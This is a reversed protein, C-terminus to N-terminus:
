MLVSKQFRKPHRNFVGLKLVSAFILILIIGIVVAIRLHYSYAKEPLVIPSTSLLLSSGEMQKDFERMPKIYPMYPPNVIKVGDGDYGTVLVFHGRKNNKGKLLVIAPYGLKKLIKSSAVNVGRAYLGKACAAVQLGQLSTGQHDKKALRCIDDLNANIRNIKLFVALCNPGCFSPLDVNTIVFEREGGASCLILAIQLFIYISCLKM